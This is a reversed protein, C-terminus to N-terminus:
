NMIKGECIFEANGIMYVIDDIIEIDIEGGPVVVKVKNEVLGLKYAVLASACNGTGCALTPGVGREFTRVKLLKENEVKCFNVNTGRPFLEYKEVLKGKNIDTETEEFIITHPVGMLLSTIEFSEGNINIHKKVIEENCNAPINAPTFDGKGMNVKMSNIVGNEAKIEVKKVGDGTLANIIDKRVINREYVYKIFCRLGNGCMEAYSGDNNIIVMEIDAKDTNRVLLIGDAGIGFHRHCLKRALKAEQGELAKNLDEIVIFDNGNGHMKVFNM